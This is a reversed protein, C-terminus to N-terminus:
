QVAICNRIAFTPHVEGSLPLGPQAIREGSREKAGCVLNLELLFALPDADDPMGYAARM